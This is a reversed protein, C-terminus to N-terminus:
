ESKAETTASAQASALSDTPSSPSVAAPERHADIHDTMVRQCIMGIMLGIPYCGIMAILARILISVASNGGALGALVAVTFAAFAFCGAIVKSPTKSM